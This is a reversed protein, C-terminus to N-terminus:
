SLIVFGSGVLLPAKVMAQECSTQFKRIRLKLSEQSYFSSKYLRVKVLPGKDM